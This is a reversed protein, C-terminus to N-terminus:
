MTIDVIICPLYSQYYSLLITPGICKDLPVERQDTLDAKTGILFGPFYSDESLDLKDKLMKMLQKAVEFSYQDDLAFIVIFGLM